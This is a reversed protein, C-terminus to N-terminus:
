SRGVLNFFVQELEVPQPTLEHIIVGAEFAIRGVTSGDSGLVSLATGGATVRLGSARLAHWLRDQDSSRVLLPPSEAGALQAVPAHRLIRGAAIIVVDDVLHTMETLQHSSIFVTGGRRAHGDLLRRLWVIGEPDLGNAPEDLVLVRPNGLLATAVALRQRMGLSYGGTRRDAAATLGVLELLEEVRDESAGALLAFTTLHARGSQGPQSVGQELVAGIHRVPHRLARYPRGDILVEGSTPRILGVLARLTTTKGSGNIGLFGTVRGPHVTFSADDVAVVRGYRKTLGRAEIM